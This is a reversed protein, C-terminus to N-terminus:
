GAGSTARSTTSSSNEATISSWPRPGRAGATCARSTSRPSTSGGPLGERGICASVHSAAVNDDYLQRAGELLLRHRAVPDADEWISRLVYVGQRIRVLFGARVARKLATDTSGAAIADRRLLIGHADILHELM